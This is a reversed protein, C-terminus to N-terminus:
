GCGGGCGAGSKEPLPNNSPVKITDSVSHAIAKSISYLLQDLRNEAKKYNAIVPNEEMQLEFAKVADKAEHYNPHFHGFRETEEFLEKKKQLERVLRKAESDNEFAKKSELYDHIEKSDVIMDAVEYAHLIVQSMEFQSVNIGGVKM